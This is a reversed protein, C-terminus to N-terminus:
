NLFDCIFIYCFNIVKYILMLFKYSSIFIYCFNIVQYLDCEYFYIIFLQLYLIKKKKLKDIFNINM